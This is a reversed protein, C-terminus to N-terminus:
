WWFETRVYRLIRRALVLGISDRGRYVRAYGTMGPLLDSVDGEVTCYVTVAGQSRNLIPTVNPAVRNVRAVYTDFPRSRAKLQVQLGSTVSQLDEENLAVEIQLKQHDEVVCVVAGKEVYQGLKERMHPTVITGAVPSRVESRQRIREVYALEEELRALRAREAEIEEPRTGAEALALKGRVDELDKERRAAEVEADLIGAAEKARKQALVQERAAQANQLRKKEALMQEGTMAGQARLKEAHEFLVQAFEVEATASAIQQDLRNLDETLAQRSRVLNERGRDRWDVQRRVIERLEKLEEPRPGAELKGLVARCERVEARKKAINSEMDPVMIRALTMTPTVDQGQEIQIDQLFGAEAARVEARAPPYATFNGGVYDNMQGFYLVSGLGALVVAWRLVRGHRQLLMKTVEGASIGSFLGRVVLLFFFASIAVGFIGLNSGQFRLLGWFMGGLFSVAFLWSAFGYVAVLVPRDPREPRPAGWLLWRLCAMSYEAGRRSLNPAELLDSLLYYGDLKMLPNFNFFIRASCVSLVVWAIYNPLTDLPTLRWAFSAGAWLCLDFYSGALSVWARKSKEPFLWADSINCFFCPTFFLLLFGVEHVEGGYHKCTLGHAFEHLLTVLIVASWMSLVIPWAIKDPLQSILESRNLWNLGAAAVIATASLVFFTRTWVFRLHPALWSFLRDPDFLSIRYHFISQRSSYITRDDDGADATADRQTGAGPASGAPLLLGRSEAMALFERLDDVPLPEGFRQEFATCIAAEAHCGDLQGLLFFEQVGVNFYKGTRPNKVVYRGNNLDRLVLEPRRRLSVPSPSANDCVPPLTEQPVGTPLEGTSKIM